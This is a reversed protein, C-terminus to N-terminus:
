EGGYWGGKSKVYDIMDRFVPNLSLTQEYGTMILQLRARTMAVNLKRDITRGNEEFCNATLFDLQWPNHATFSYIIVDRQSGQYREVTDISVDLLEPMCLKELEKRIVAIQNRYPVIVGVTRAADFSDGTMLRLRHLLDAVIAAEATNVKESVGPRRCFPSPLFLMRHRRMLRDLRDSTYSPGYDLDPALQHRLPVPVLNESTYFANNPYEAVDPHMRGYHSLVGTFDERGANRETTLLREFLSNRCDTLGIGRLSEETVASDNRGQQVVAPLQKHDGIMIFRSIRCREQGGAGKRHTSLLGIINPELIQSAEDIVALSFGRIDFVYPYSMLMSTTGTVIRAGKVLRQMDGLKPNRVAAQSLLRQKFRPDTSYENGIRLYELGSDELMACIEDVARNTYAMLLVSTEKGKLEEEVIFRLAMSTKGTGPPGILLFYDKARKARLLIEDYGRNYSRTLSLTDDRRPARRGLLLSKRDEPATVFEQLGRIAFTSGGSAAHEVAYRFIDSDDGAKLINPNQQGDSLLVTIESTKIETVSGKYLISKRVDPEDTMRYKYLYVADGRRFNPLFGEDQGPVSLIIRDYAPNRESKLKEKITLGTYINGTEIKETLPMNWLDAVSGTVGEQAGVKGILQERYVFTMMRCFYDQELPSMRQLPLTIENIQPLLYDQYFKSYLHRENLVEPTLLPLVSRFGERAIKVDTLVIRNRLRIAEAFLKRYFVVSQLGREPPFKSYLLKMAVHEKGLGFNYRLVGYYLLLQVFHPELYNSKNAGSRDSAIKWNKGAKQEVLLRYDTTMLDVRGQLGLRECIFSPELIAKGRDYEDFMVSVAKKINGAQNVADGKFEGPSFDPCACYQLAKEKFNEKLTDAFSFSGNGNVVDDLARGAFNGLLIASSNPRRGLLSTTYSLPHHGYDKFCAAISSIDLLYDPEAVVLKPVFVKCRSGDPTGVSKSDDLKGDLLNLQLGEYLMSKDFANDEESMDVALLQEDLGKEVSVYVYSDDSRQVICRVYSVNLRDDSSYTRGVRPIAKLVDFPVKEGTIASIFLSLARLDYRYDKEPLPESRNSHRRMTQIDIKDRMTMRHRRCLYDVQSFLNGYAQRSDKLGEHCAAVLAEHMLKNLLLPEEKGILSSIEAIRSFLNNM